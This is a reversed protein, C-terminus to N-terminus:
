TGDGVLAGYLTSGIKWISIVTDGTTALTPAAGANNVWTITPWTITFGTGDDIHLLLSEGAGLSDTFTVNGTLTVDWLTGNTSAPDLAVSGTLTANVNAGETVSGTLVIDTLNTQIFDRLASVSFSVVEGNPDNGTDSVDTGILRDSAAPTTAPYTTPDNIKAM